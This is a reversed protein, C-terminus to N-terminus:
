HKELIKQQPRVKHGVNSKLIEETTAFESNIITEVLYHKGKKFASDPTFILHDGQMTLKGPWEIEMGTSDEDSPTELVTVIKQYITDTKLGKKLHLLGDNNINSVIIASSDASFDILVSKKTTTNCSLLFIWTAVFFIKIFKFM